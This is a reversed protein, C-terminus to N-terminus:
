SSGPERDGVLVDFAVDAEREWRAPAAPGRWARAQAKVGLVIEPGAQEALAIAARLPELMAAVSGGDAPSMRHVAGLIGPLDTLDGQRALGSAASGAEFVDESLLL